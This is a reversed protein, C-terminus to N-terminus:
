DYRSGQANKPASDGAVSDPEVRTAAFGNQETRESQMQAVKKWRAFSFIEKRGRFSAFNHRCYECRWRRAGFLLKISTWFPPNFNRGTWSNLDMRFCIPCRAYKLDRWDLTSAVFRTKCDLCRLPSVFRLGNLREILTRTRSPRLFRSGCRPCAIM